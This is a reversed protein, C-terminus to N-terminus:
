NVVVADGHLRDGPRVRHQEAEVEVVQLVGGRETERDAAGVVGLVLRVPQAPHLHEPRHHRARRRPLVEGRAPMRHLRELPPVVGGLGLVVVGVPDRCQESGDRRRLEAGEGVDIHGGLRLVVADVADPEVAADGPRLRPVGLEASGRDLQGIRGRARPCPERAAEALREPPHARHRRIGRPRQATREVLERPLVPEGRQGLSAVPAHVHAQHHVPAVSIRLRGLEVVVRGRRAAARRGREGPDIVDDRPAGRRVLGRQLVVLEEDQQVVVFRDRHPGTRRVERLARDEPVGVDAVEDVVARDGRREQLVPLLQVSRARRPLQTHPRLLVVGLGVREPGGHERRARAVAVQEVPVGRTEVLTRGADVQRAREAQVADEAVPEGLRPVIRPRHQQVSPRVRGAADMRAVVVNPHHPARM